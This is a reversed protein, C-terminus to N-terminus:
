LQSGAIRRELAFVREEINTIRDVTTADSTDLRRMRQDAARAWKWFETLLNTEVREIETRVGAIQKDIANFNDNIASFKDDIASFKDDIASFKDDIASFKDDIANFRDDIVAFKGDLYARLQEDM